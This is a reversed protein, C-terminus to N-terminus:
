NRRGNYDVAEIPPYVIVEFFRSRGGQKHCAQADYLLLYRKRCAGCLYGVHLNRRGRMFVGTLKGAM